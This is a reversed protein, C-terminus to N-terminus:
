HDPGIIFKFGSNQLREGKPIILDRYNLSAAHFKVLVEYDSVEPVAVKENLKLSNFGNFGQITWAKTTKPAASM